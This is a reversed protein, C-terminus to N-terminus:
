PEVEHNGGIATLSTQSTLDDQVIIQLSRNIGIRKVVGHKDPGGLTYRWNFGDQGQVPNTAAYPIWDLGLLGMDKNQKINWKQKFVTASLKDRLQLGRTIGGAIDGFTSLDVASAALNEILIRTIDWELTSGAGGARIEFVQPTISGDVNMDHTSSLVTDGSDYVFDLSRDLTLTLVSIGLVTARFFRQEGTVGSFIFITDGISISAISAVDITYSEFITDATLTTPAGVAHSFFFDDFATTQDQIAVDTKGGVPTTISLIGRQDEGNADEITANDNNRELYNVDGKAM